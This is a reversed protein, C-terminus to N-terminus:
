RFVFNRFKYEHGTQRVKTPEGDERPNRLAAGEDVRRRLWLRGDRSMTPAVVKAGSSLNRRSRVRCSNMWCRSGSEGRDEAEIHDDACGSWTSRFQGM